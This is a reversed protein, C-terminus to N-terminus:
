IVGKDKFNQNSLKSYSFLFLAMAVYIGSVGGYIVHGAFFSFIIITFIGMIDMVSGKKFTAIFYKIYISVILIVGSIGFWDFTDFVEMEVAYEGINLFGNGFFIQFLSIISSQVTTFSFESFLPIIRATRGSTLYTLLNGGNAETFHNFLFTQRKLFNLFIDDFVFIVILCIPILICLVKLYNKLKFNKGKIYNLIFVLFILILFILSAKSEILILCTTVLIVPIILLKKSQIKSLLFVLLVLLIINLENSSNYFGIFGNKNGLYSTHGIGLYKPILILLPIIISSLIFVSSIDNYRNQKYILNKIAIMNLIFSFMKFMWSFNISYNPIIFYNGIVSIALLILIPIFVKFIECIKTRSILLLIITLLVHHLTGFSSDYNRVFFGNISDLFPLLFFIILLLKSISDRPQKLDFEKIKDDLKKIFNKNNSIYKQGHFNNINQLCNFFDNENECGLIFNASTFQNLIQEQHDDVHEGYCSKRAMAIVKKNETLASIIAGTGAHTIVINCDNIMNKFEDKDLFQVYEFNKPIYTSYGIQAFVPESIIGTEIANDIYKLLRNFQFKQSGLTVFIM